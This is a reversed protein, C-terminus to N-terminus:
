DAEFQQCLFETTKIQFIEFSCNQKKIVNNLYKLHRHHKAMAM